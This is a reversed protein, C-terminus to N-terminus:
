NKIFYNIMDKDRNKKNKIKQNTNNLKKLFVRSPQSTRKFWKDIDRTWAANTCPNFSSTYKNSKPLVFPLKISSFLTRGSYPVFIPSPVTNLKPPLVLVYVKFTRLFDIKTKLLTKIVQTMRYNYKDNCNIKM